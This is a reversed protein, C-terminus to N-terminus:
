SHLCVMLAQHCESASKGLMSVWKLQMKGDRVSLNDSVSVLQRMCKGGFSNLSEAQELALLSEQLTRLPVTIDSLTLGSSEFLKRSRELPHLIDSVAHLMVVTRADMLLDLLPCAADWKMSASHVPRYLFTVLVPYVELLRKVCECRSVM